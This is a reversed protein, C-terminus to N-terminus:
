LRAVLKMKMLPHRPAVNECPPGRLVKSGGSFGGHGILHLAASPPKQGLSATSQQQRDTQRDCDPITAFRSFM